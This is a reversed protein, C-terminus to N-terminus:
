TYEDASRAWAVPVGSLDNARQQVLEAGRLVCCTYVFSNNIVRKATGLKLIVYVRHLPM